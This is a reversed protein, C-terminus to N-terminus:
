RSDSPTFGAQALRKRAEDEGLGRIFFRKDRSAAGSLLEIDRTAVGLAEALLAAIRQNAKGKEPPAQVAVKLADGHVGVVRERSAGPAARVKLVVGDARAEMQLTMVPLTM